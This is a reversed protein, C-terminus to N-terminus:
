NAENNKNEQFDSPNCGSVAKWAAMFRQCQSENTIGRFSGKKYLASGLGVFGRAGGGKL